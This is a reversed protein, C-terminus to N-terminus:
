VRIQELQVVAELRPEQRAGCQHRREVVAIGLPRCGHEALEVRLRLGVALSQEEGVLRDPARKGGLGDLAYAVDDLLGPVAAAHEVRPPVPM